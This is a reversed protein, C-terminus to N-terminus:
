ATDTYDPVDQVFEIGTNGTDDLTITPQASVSASTLSNATTPNGLGVMVTSGQGSNSVTGTAVTIASDARTAVTYDTVSVATPTNATFDFSM